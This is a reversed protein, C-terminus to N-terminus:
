KISKLLNVIQDVNAVSGKLKDWFKCEFELKELVSEQINEENEDDEKWLCDVVLATFHRFVQCHYRNDNTGAAWKPYVGLLLLCFEDLKFKRKVMGRCGRGFILGLAMFCAQYFGYYSEDENECNKRPATNLLSKVVCLVRENGTSCFFLGASIVATSVNNISFASANKDWIEGAHVLNRLVMEGAQEPLNEYFNKLAIALCAGQNISLSYRDDRFIITKLEEGKSWDKAILNKALVRFTICSFRLNRSLRLKELIVKNDSKVFIMILATIAAPSTSDPDIASNFPELVLEDRASQDDNNQNIKPEELSLFDEVGSVAAPAISFSNNLGALRCLRQVVKLSNEFKLSEKQGAFVLGISFVAAYQFVSHSTSSRIFLQEAATANNNTQAQSNPNNQNFNSVPITDVSKAPGKEAANLLVQLMRSDQTDFYVFGLSILAAYQTNVNIVYDRASTAALSNNSDALIPIHCAITRTLQWDASGMNGVSQGILLATTTHIENLYLYQAFTYKNLHTLKKRSSLGFLFGAHQWSRLEASINSSENNEESSFQVDDKNETNHEGRQECRRKALWDRTIAQDSIKITFALTVGNHFSPWLQFRDKLLKDMQQTIANLEEGQANRVTQPHTLEM